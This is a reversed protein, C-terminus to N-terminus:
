KAEQFLKQLEEPMQPLPSTRIRMEEGEKSIMLNVKGWEPDTKPYDLRTHAGRSEKRM